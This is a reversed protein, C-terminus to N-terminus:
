EQANAQSPNSPHWPLVQCRRSPLTTSGNVRRRCCAPGRPHRRLQRLSPHLPQHSLALRLRWQPQDQPSAPQLVALQRERARGCEGGRFDRSVGADQHLRRQRTVRKGRHQRLERRGSEEAGVAQRQGRGRWRQRGRGGESREGDGVGGQGLDVGREDHAGMAGSLAVARGLAPVGAPRGVMADQARARLWRRMERRENRM